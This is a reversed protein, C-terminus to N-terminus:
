TYFNRLLMVDFIPLEAYKLTTPPTMLRGLSDIRALVTLTGVIFDSSIQDQHPYATRSTDRHVYSAADILVLFDLDPSPVRLGLVKGTTIGALASTEFEARSGLTPRLTLNFFPLSLAAYDLPQLPSFGVM